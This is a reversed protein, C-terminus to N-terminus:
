LEVKFQKMEAKIMNEMRLNSEVISLLTAETRRNSNNASEKVLQLDAELAAVRDDINKGLACRFCKIRHHSPPAFATSKQMLLLFMAIFVAMAIQEVQHSRIKQTFTFTNQMLTAARRFRARDM